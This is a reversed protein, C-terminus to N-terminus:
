ASGHSAGNLKKLADESLAEASVGANKDVLALVAEVADIAGQMSNVNAILRDRSRLYASKLSELEERSVM